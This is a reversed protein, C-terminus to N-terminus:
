ELEDDESNYFVYLPDITPDGASAGPDDSATRIQEDLDVQAVTGGGCSALLSLLAAIAFYM